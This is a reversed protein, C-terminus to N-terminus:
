RVGIVAAHHKAWEIVEEITPRTEAHIPRERLRMAAQFASVVARVARSRTAVGIASVRLGRLLMADLWFGTLSAPILTINPPLAALLIIPQQKCAEVLPPLLYESHERNLTEAGAFHVVWIGPQVCELSNKM